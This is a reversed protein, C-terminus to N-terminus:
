KHNIRRLHNINKEGEALRYYHFVYIGRMIGIKYGIERARKSFDSDLYLLGNRFKVSRLVRARMLMFMGALENEKLERVTTKFQNWHQITRKKHKVIDTEGFMKSSRQEPSKLRNTMCGFIDIEPHAEITQAVWWKLRSDLICIDQDLICIWDEDDHGYSCDNYVDGLNGNLAYPQYYYVHPLASNAGHGSLGVWRDFHAGDFIRMKVPKKHLIYSLSIQDRYASILTEAYWAEMFECMASTNRVVNLGTEYLLGSEQTEKTYGLEAYRDFLSNGVAEPIKGLDICARIEQTQTERSSHVKILFDADELKKLLEEPDSKLVMSADIWLRVDYNVYKYTRLKIDRAIHTNGPIVVMEWIESHLEPNDTFMIYSWDPNYGDMVPDKLYDYGGFICSVVVKKHKKQKGMQYNKSRLYAM